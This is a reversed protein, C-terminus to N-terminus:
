KEMRNVLKVFDDLSRVVAVAQIAQLALQEPYSRGKERKFEVAKWKNKQGRKTIFADPTGRTTNSAKYSATSKFILGVRDAYEKCQAKIQAESLELKKVTAKRTM